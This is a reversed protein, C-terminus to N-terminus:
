WGGSHSGTYREAPQLVHEFMTRVAQYQRPLVTLTCRYWHAAVITFLGFGVPVSWGLLDTMSLDAPARTRQRRTSSADFPIARRVHRVGAGSWRDCAMGAYGDRGATRARARLPWHIEYSSLQGQARLPLLILCRFHRGAETQGQLYLGARDSGHVAGPPRARHCRAMPRVEPTHHKGSIAMRLRELEVEKKAGDDRKLIAEHPLIGSRRRSAGPSPMCSPRWVESYEAAFKFERHHRVGYLKMGYDAMLMLVIDGPVGREKLDVFLRFSAGLAADIQAAALV